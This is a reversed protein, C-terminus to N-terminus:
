RCRASPSLPAAERVARKPQPNVARRILGLFRDTLNEYTLSEFVPRWIRRVVSPPTMQQLCTELAVRLAGPNRAPVVSGIRNDKVIDAHCGVEDTVVVPLGAALAELVVVGWTESSPLVFVDAMAYWEPLDGPQVFGLFRIRDASGLGDSLEELGRRAPGDGAIILEAERLAGSQSMARILTAVGKRPILRGTFLIVPRNSLERAARLEARRQRQLDVRQAIDAVDPVNPILTLRERDAGYHILYDRALVGTPFGGAAHEVAWRVLRRKIWRRWWARPQDLYSECMLFYPTGQRVAYRIGTLMTVHNYGGFVLVDYDGERLRRAVGPNWFCSADARAWALLNRGDLVESHFDRSWDAKWPRDKKGASCYFVHLEVDEQRAVANWFPDRYPTPIPTVVAVKM